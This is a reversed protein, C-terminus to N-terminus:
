GVQTETIHQGEVKVETTEDKSIGELKWFEELDEDKVCANECAQHSFTEEASVQVPLIAIYVVHFLKCIIFFFADIFTSACRVVIRQVSSTCKEVRVVKDANQACM